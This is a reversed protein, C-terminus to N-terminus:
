KKKKTGSKPKSGGSGFGFFGGSSSSKSSKSKTKAKSSIRKLGTLDLVEPGALAGPPPPPPVGMGGLGTPMHPPMMMGPPLPPFNPHIPGGSGKKHDKGSKENHKKQRAMAQQLMFLRTHDMPHRPGQNPHQPPAERKPEPWMHMSIAMDPKVTTEWVQPLIIEGGPGILDYQNEAVQKGLKDIHM